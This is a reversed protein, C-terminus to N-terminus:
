KYWNPYGHLKFRTDKTHWPAKCNECSRDDKKKKNNQAKLNHQTVKAMMASNEVNNLIGGQISRQKEVRLVM